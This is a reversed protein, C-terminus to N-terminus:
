CPSNKVSAMHGRRARICRWKDLLLSECITIHGTDTDSDTNLAARIHSGQQSQRLPGHPAVQRDQPRRLSRHHAPRDGRIVWFLASMRHTVGWMVCTVYAVGWHLLVVGWTVCIVGWTVSMTVGRVAGQRPRATFPNRRHLAVGRGKRFNLPARTPTQVACILISRINRNSLLAAPATRPRCSPSAGSPWAPGGNAPCRWSHSPLRDFDVFDVQARPPRPPRAAPRLRGAPPPCAM